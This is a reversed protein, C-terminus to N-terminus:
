LTSHDATYFEGEKRKRRKVRHARWCVSAVLLMLGGACLLGVSVVKTQPLTNFSFTVGTGAMGIVLSIVGFPFVCRYWSKETGGTAQALRELTLHSEPPNPPGGAGLSGEGEGGGNLNQHDQPFSNSESSNGCDLDPHFVSAPPQRGSSCGMRSPRHPPTCFSNPPNRQFTSAAPPLVSLLPPAPPAASGSLSPPARGAHRRAACSDEGGGARHTCAAALSDPVKDGLIRPLNQLQPTWLVVSLDLFRLPSGRLFSLSLRTRLCSPPLTIIHDQQIWTRSLLESVTSRGARSCVPLGTLVSLPSFGEVWVDTPVEAPSCSCARNQQNQRNQIQPFTIVKIM